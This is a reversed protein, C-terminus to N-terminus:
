QEGGGGERHVSNLMHSCDLEPTLTVKSRVQRPSQTSTCQQSQLQTVAKREEKGERGQRDAGGEIVRRSGNMKGSGPQDEDARGRGRERKRKEVTLAMMAHLM